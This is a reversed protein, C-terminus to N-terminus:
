PKVLALLRAADPYEGRSVIEGDVVLIPLCAMGYREVAKTVKTNAAFEAQQQAPNIRVVDIGHTELEKLASRFNVLKPDVGPGCVGSSCCMPPDYVELKKM